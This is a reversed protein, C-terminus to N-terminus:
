RRAGPRARRGGCLGLRLHTAHQGGPRRHATGHRQALRCLARSAARGSHRLGMGDGDAAPRVCRPLARRRRRRREALGARLAAAGHGHRGRPREPGGHQEDRGIYVGADQGAITADARLKAARLAWLCQGYFPSGFSGLVQEPEPPETGHFGLEVECCPNEGPGSEAERGHCSRESCCCCRRRLGEGADYACAATVEAGM